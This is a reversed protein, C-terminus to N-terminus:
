RSETPADRGAGNAAGQQGTGVMDVEQKRFALANARREVVIAWREVEVAPEVELGIVLLDARASVRNVRAHAPAAADLPKSM